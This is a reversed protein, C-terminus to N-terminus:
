FTGGSAQRVPSAVDAGNQDILSRGTKWHVPIANLFVADNNQIWTEFLSDPLRPQAADHQQAILDAFASIDRLVNVKVQVYRPYAVFPSRAAPMVIRVAALATFTKKEGPKIVALHPMIAGDPIESGISITVTQSDSDYASDTVKTAIAVPQRSNNQVQFTINVSSGSSITDDGLQADIRVDDDLALARRPDNMDVRAASAAVSHCLVTTAAILLFTKSRM